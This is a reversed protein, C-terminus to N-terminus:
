QRNERGTRELEDERYFRKVSWSEPQPLIGQNNYLWMWDLQGMNWLASPVTGELKNNQLLLQRLNPMSGLEAPVTGELQNDNLQMHTLSTMNALEPPITWTLQNNYLGLHTLCTLEGLKAPIAGVIRNGMLFLRQLTTVCGLMCPLTGNLNNHPLSISIIKGQTCELGHWANKCPDGDMWNSNELWSPGDLDAYFTQMVELDSPCTNDCAPLITIPFSARASLGTYAEGNGMGSHGHDYVFVEITAKGESGKYKMQYLAKNIEDLTGYLRMHQTETGNTANIFELGEPWAGLTMVGTDCTLHLEVDNYGSDDTIWLDTFFKWLQHYAIVGFRTYSEEPINIQPPYNPKLSVYIALCHPASCVPIFSPLDNNEACVSWCLQHLGAQSVTPTWKYITTFPNTGFENRGDRFGIPFPGEVYFLYEGPECCHSGTRNSAITYYNTQLAYVILVSGHPPTPDIFTPLSPYDCYGHCLDPDSVDTTCNFDSTCATGALCNGGQAPGVCYKKLLQIKYLFDVVVTRNSLPDFGQIQANYFAQDSVGSLNSWTVIGTFENIKWYPTPPTSDPIVPDNAYGSMTLSDSHLFNITNGKPDFAVFKQTAVDEGDYLTVAVIPLWGTILSTQISDDMVVMVSIRTQLNANNVIEGIRCCETYYAEYVGPSEYEHYFICETYLVELPNLDPDDLSYCSAADFAHSTNDGFLFGQGFTIDDYAFPTGAPQSRMSPFPAVPFNKNWGCIVRFEYYYSDKWSSTGNKAIRKWTVVSYRFHTGNADEVCLLAIWLALTIFLM